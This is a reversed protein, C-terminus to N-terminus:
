FELRKSRDEMDFMVEQSDTDKSGKSGYSPEIEQLLMEANLIDHYNLRATFAGEVVILRALVEKISEIEESDSMERSIANILMGALEYLSTLDEEYGPYKMQSIVRIDTRIALLIKNRFSFDVDDKSAISIPNNFDKNGAAKLGEWLMNERNCEIDELVEKELQDNVIARQIKCDLFDIIGAIVINASLLWGGHVNLLFLVNIVLQVLFRVSVDKIFLSRDNKLAEYLNKEVIDRYKNYFEQYGAMDQINKFSEDGNNYLVKAVYKAFTVEKEDETDYPHLAKARAIFKDFEKQVGKDELAERSFVYVNEVYYDYQYKRIMFSKDEYYVFDVFDEPLICRLDSFFEKASTVRKGDIVLMPEVEVMRNNNDEGVKQLGVNIVHREICKNNDKLIDIVLKKM